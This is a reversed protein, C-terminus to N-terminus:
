SVVDMATQRQEGTASTASLTVAYEGPETRLSAALMMRDGARNPAVVFGAPNGNVPVARRSAAKLLFEVTDGSADLPVPQGAGIEYHEQELAM